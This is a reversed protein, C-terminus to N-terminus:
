DNSPVHGAVASRSVPREGVGHGHANARRDQAHKRASCEAEKDSEEDEEGEFHAYGKRKPHKATGAKTSHDAIDCRLGTERKGFSNYMEEHSKDTRLRILDNVGIMVRGCPQFAAEPETQKGSYNKGDPPGKLNFAVDAQLGGLAVV